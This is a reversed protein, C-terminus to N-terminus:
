EGPYRFTVAFVNLQGLSVRMAEWLPFHPLLLNLLHVLNHTKEFPVDKEQLVAKLYKEICQQAHFCAADFNPQKRCRLEREAVAFDGEAKDVWERTLPKM